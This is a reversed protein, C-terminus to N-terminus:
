HIFSRVRAAGISISGTTGVTTGGTTEGTTGGTEGTTGATTTGTTGTTAGTTGGTEGTTGATTTGTEGTTGTTSGTTGGTEGTTTGTTAGTTGGTTTTGATTSGTTEGTTSGTTTGTTGGTTTTGATTSGTTEGTTTGTTGTTAGTTGGTTAGGTTTGTTGGTTSGPKTVTVTVAASRTRKEFKDVAEATFTYTGPGVDKLTITYPAKLSFGILRKGSWFTVYRIGDPDSAEATLTIKAPATFTAGDTPSTLKITAATNGVTIKVPQSVSSEGFSDTARAIIVHTGPSVKPWVFTYPATKVTGLFRGDAFFMVSAISDGADDSADATITIDQSGDFSAGDTPSTISVKPAADSVTIRSRDSVLTAGNADTGKASITYHGPGVGTWTFKFPAASATGIAKDGNYFTVSQVNAAADAAAELEISAPASFTRGDAPSILKLVDNIVVPKTSTVHVPASLTSKGFQDEARAFIAFKGAPVNSWILSYPSTSVSGLFKDNAFFSVKPSTKDPDSADATITLDSGAKITTNDAPATITVSPAQDEFANAKIDVIARKGHTIKYADDKQITVEVWKGPANEGTALPQVVLGVAHFGDPITVSDPLKAYDVGNEATGGVAIKVVLDGATTDRYLTFAGTTLGDFAVPDSATVSVKPLDSANADEDARTVQLAVSMLLAMLLSFKKMPDFKM